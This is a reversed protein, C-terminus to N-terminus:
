ELWVWFSCLTPPHSVHLTSKGIMDHPNRLQFIQNVTYQWNPTSVLQFLQAGDSNLYLFTMMENHSRTVWHNLLDLLIVRLTDGNEGIQGTDGKKFFLCRVDVQPGCGTDGFIIGRNYGDSTRKQCHVGQLMWHSDSRCTTDEHCVHTVLFQGSRVHVLYWDVVADQDGINPMLESLVAMVRLAKNSTTHIYVSIIM